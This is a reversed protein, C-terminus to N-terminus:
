FDCGYSLGLIFGRHVGSVCLGGGHRGGWCTGRHAILFRLAFRLFWLSVLNHGLAVCHSGTYMSMGWYVDAICGVCQCASDVLARWLGWCLM